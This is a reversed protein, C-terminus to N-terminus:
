GPKLMERAALLGGGVILLCALALTWTADGLGFVVLLVTSLLPAAYAGAGLVRLDGHKVGHDWAFFAAGVPGLGLGLVALWALADAPWATTELVLHAIWALLATGGCFAGVADTSVHAFRRSLVSYSSWALAAGIAALYGGSFEARIVLGTGGTVILATGALGLAAGALHFWRLRGVGAEAPLLASFLVILVPWLYNILNADAPPANQIGIFYLLHYGFLGAIGLAWLRAPQRLHTRPDEGRALWIAVTLAFVITFAMAVLQFPPVPGALTGFLALTSWTLVAFFGILTARNRRPPVVPRSAAM